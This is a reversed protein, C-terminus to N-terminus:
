ASQPEFLPLRPGVQHLREQCLYSLRFAANVDDPAAGGRPSCPKGHVEARRVEPPIPPGGRSPGGRPSGLRSLAVEPPTVQAGSQSERPVLEARRNGVRGCLHGVIQGRSAKLCCGGIQLETFGYWINASRYGQSERGSTEKFLKPSMGAAIWVSFCTELAPGLSCVFALLRQTLLQRRRAFRKTSQEAKQRRKIPSRRRRANASIPFWLRAQRFNLSSQPISRGLPLLASCVTEWETLPPSGIRLKVVIESCDLEKTGDWPKCFLFLFKIEIPNLHYALPSEFERGV